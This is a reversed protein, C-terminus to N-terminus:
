FEVQILRLLFVGDSRLFRNVFGNLLDQEHRTPHEGIASTCRLYKAVYSKRQGSLVIAFFWYLLSLVSLVGVFIFWFWFFVLNRVQNNNKLYLKGFIKENFMNIMLVCQVTWRHINGLVRVNFDCLTVRPFHGSETWQRGHWIDNLVGWGWFTYEPGLFVDLIVFQLVINLVYLLKTFLYLASLYNGNRKAYISLINTSTKLEKQMELAEILHNAARQVQNGRTGKDFKKKVLAANNLVTKVNIGTNFNLAKWIFSPLYFLVAQLGLYNNCFSM